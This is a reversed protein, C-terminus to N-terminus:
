SCGNLYTYKTKNCAYHALGPVALFSSGNALFRFVIKFHCVIKIIASTEEINNVLESTSRKEFVNLVKVLVDQVAQGTAWMSCRSMHCLDLTTAASRSTLKTVPNLPIKIANRIISLDFLACCEGLITTQQVVSVGFYIRIFSQRQLKIHM